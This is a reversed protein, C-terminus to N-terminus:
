FFFFFSLVMNFIPELFVTPLAVYVEMASYNASSLIAM